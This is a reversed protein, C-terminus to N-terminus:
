DVYSPLYNIQKIKYKHSEGFQSAESQTRPRKPISELLLPAYAQNWSMHVQPAFPRSYQIIEESFILNFWLQFNQLFWFTGSTNNSLDQHAPNLPIKQTLNPNLIHPYQNLLSKQSQFNL